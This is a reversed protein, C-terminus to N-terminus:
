NVRVPRQRLQEDRGYVLERTLPPNLAFLARITNRPSLHDEDGEDEDVCNHEVARAIRRTLPDYGPSDAVFSRAALAGVYDCTLEEARQDRIRLGTLASAREGVARFLMRLSARDGDAIHALEHALVSVMAEDSRLGALFITGFTITMPSRLFVSANDRSEVDPKVRKVMQVRKIAQQLKVARDPSRQFDYETALQKLADVVLSQAIPLLRQARTAGAMAEVSQVPLSPRGQMDDIPISGQPDKKREKCVVDIARDIMEREETSLSMGPRSSHSGRTIPRKGQGFAVNGISFFLVLLVCVASVCPRRSATGRSRPSMTLLAAEIQYADEIRKINM